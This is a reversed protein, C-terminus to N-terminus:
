RNAKPDLADRLGDGLLNFSVVVLVLLFAPTFFYLFDGSAYQISDKLINGLTPTPPVISIGLYSLAAEASVYAPLILTFQVLIPAWLNPLVERFWLRARSAGLLRAADIFERERISLVQGRVVRAVSPWGFVALVIIVYVAHSTDGAPVHLNDTLFAVITGSLALLMLTQPFSLVLDVLRGILTDTWGGAMGAVIGLVVGLVVALVAASTAILLSFTLGYWVRSMVDRGIGPEIGMPHALSIGGFVGGKPLGQPDILDQHLTYPDLAHSSVLVPAIAALVVYVVVVAAGFLTKRDRVFRSWALRGPSRSQVAAAGAKAARTPEITTISM